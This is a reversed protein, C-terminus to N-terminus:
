LVQSSEMLNLDVKKTKMLSLLSLIKAKEFHSKTSSMIGMGGESIDLMNGTIYEDENAIHVLSAHVIAARPFKRSLLPYTELEKIDYIVITNDEACLIKAKVSYNKEDSNEKITFSTSHDSIMSLQEDSVKIVASHQGLQQISSKYPSTRLKTHVVFRIERDLKYMNHLYIVGDDKPMYPSIDFTIKDHESLATFFNNRLSELVTILEKSQQYDKTKKYEIFEKVM